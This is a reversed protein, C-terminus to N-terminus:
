SGLVSVVADCGHERLRQPLAKVVEKEKSGHTLGFEQYPVLKLGPFRQPLLKGLRNLKESLIADGKWMEVALGCITKGELSDLRPALTGVGTLSAGLPYVVEYQSGNM